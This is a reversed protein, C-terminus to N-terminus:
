LEGTFLQPSPHLCAAVKGEARQAGEAEEAGEAGEAGEAQEGLLVM